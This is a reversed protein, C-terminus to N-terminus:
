EYLKKADEIANGGVSVKAMMNKLTTAPQAKGTIRGPKLPKLILARDKIEAALYEGEKVQLHHDAL